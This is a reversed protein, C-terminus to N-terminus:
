KQYCTKCVKPKYAICSKTIGASITCKGDKVCSECKDQEAPPQIPHKFPYKHAINSDLSKEGLALCACINQLENIAKTQEEVARKLENIEHEYRELKNIRAVQELYFERSM